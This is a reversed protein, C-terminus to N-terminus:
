NEMEENIFVVEQKFIVDFYNYEVLYIIHVLVKIRVIILNSVIIKELASVFNVVHIILM